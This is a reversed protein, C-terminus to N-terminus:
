LSKGREIGTLKQLIVMLIDTLECSMREFIGEPIITNYERNIFEEFFERLIPKAIVSFADKFEPKLGMNPIGSNQVQIIKHVRSKISEHLVDLTQNYLERLAEKTLRIDKIRMQGKRTVELIGDKALNEVYTYVVKLSLGTDNAIDIPTTKLGADERKKVCLIVILPKEYFEKVQLTM